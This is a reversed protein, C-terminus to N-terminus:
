IFYKVRTLCWKMSKEKKCTEKCHSLAFHMIVPELTFPYHAWCTPLMSIKPINSIGIIFPVFRTTRSHQICNLATFFSFRRQHQILSLGDLLDLFAVVPWGAVLQSRGAALWWGCGGAAKV